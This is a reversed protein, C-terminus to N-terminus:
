SLFIKNILQKFVQWAGKRREYAKLITKINHVADSDLPADRVYEMLEAVIWDDYKQHYPNAYVTSSSSTLEEDNAYSYKFKEEM